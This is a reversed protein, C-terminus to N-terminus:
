RRRRAALLGGLGLLAASGPTPVTNLFSADVWGQTGTSYATIRGSTENYTTSMGRVPHFWIGLKDRFGTGHWPDVADPYLPVHNIIATADIDFSMTRREGGPTMTDGAGLASLKYAEDNVGHILDGIQNGGAVPNGDQWSNPGNQGNYGYVTMRPNALNRADFYFIAMEGPHTKPNPGDNIALWFGNTQLGGGPNGPVAGFTVSFTLRKTVDDFSTSFSDVLGAAHNATPGGPQGNQWNYSWVTAFASSSAALAIAGAAACILTRM